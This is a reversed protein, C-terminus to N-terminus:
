GAELEDLLSTLDPLILDPTPNWKEAMAQTTVGSLVLATPCGASQGGAIDTELRDGVVLAENSAIELRELAQQFMTPQPKGIIVAKVDSAAELAAIIAGAGPVLGQPSPFTRDPNTGIFLIGKRILVAAAALKQYNIDHDLAAVVALPNHDGHSFGYEELTIVLGEEGVIFVEGGEPHRQKLYEATSVASTVVQWPAARVGLKELKSLYQNVSRTANNTAFVVKLGRDHIRGFIGPLDGIPEADRWIVGDMDLILAKLNSPDM